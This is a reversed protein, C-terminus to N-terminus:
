PLRYARIGGVNSIIGYGVYVTDGSVAARSSTTAPLQFTKLRAGSTADYVYWDPVDNTGTFLVDNKVGVHAYARGIESTWLTSGDQVDFAQLHPPAPNARPIMEFLAAYIRGNEYALAGNFLGFGAFAPSVPIPLVENKWVVDGDAEDFAYLTGHKAGSVLVTRPRGREDEVDLLLPGNLFGFDHYAGKEECPGNGNCMADTGCDISQDQACSGFQEPPVVRNLWETAGTAADLKMISDSDGISPFTYCGVANVYVSEGDASVAPSATVGAGRGQVCEGNEPCDSADDCSIATDTRCVREPVNQREWLVEGTELDLAATRGNTCPNDSHSAIGAFVRGGGVAVASWIQDVTQDGVLTQWRVAGTRGDLRFVTSWGDGIVLDTSGPILTVNGQFGAESRFSWKLAGTRPDLAYLNRDWSPVYLFEDTVVPGATVGGNAPFDWALELEAANEPTIQRQAPPLFFSEPVTVDGISTWDGPTCPGEKCSDAGSCDLEVDSGSTGTQECYVFSPAANEGRYVIGTVVGDAFRAIAWREGELDKNVLTSSGDPTIQLGSGPTEQAPRGASAARAAVDGGEPLFFSEPLTVDGIATWQSASCPAVDCRPAGSCSLEVNGAAIGTEECYVFQPDGGDPFYVNGSVDDASRVIAWREAGVNKVVLTRAGDPTIQLGSQAAAPGAILLLGLILSARDRV